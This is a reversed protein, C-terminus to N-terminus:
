AAFFDYRVTAPLMMEPPEELVGKLDPIESIKVFVTAGPDSFRTGKVFYGLISEIAGMPEYVGKDKMPWHLILRLMGRHTKESGWSNDTVNNPIHIVELWGSDDAPKKFNRGIYKVPLTPTTSAAVAAIVAKQLAELIAKETM